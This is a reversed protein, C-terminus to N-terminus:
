ALQPVEAPLAPPLAPGQQPQILKDMGAFDMPPLGSYELIQNFAQGAGKVQMIQAFGQPNTFMFRFINVLKDTMQALNKTKGAVSVKVGLEVDRLENKLLKIFKKNGTKKFEEKVKEIFSDKEGEVFKGTGYLVRNKYEKNWLNVALNDAVFNLEDVTLESLFQIDKTLKRKIDPIIWDRYIEEIHRAFQARRYEHLGHSEATVLEQLKFPTGSSPSEGMIADNAAGMQQAHQEWNAISKEFLSINRPFTDIQGIDMGPNVEVIELNKMDKLGNPHKSMVTPDTSKLLTVSAADLMNQMRIMDYNVWVQPEFLEEAAGRGLARGYIEDRKILKFKSMTDEEATYLIVGTKEFAGKPQYFAVIFIRTEYDEGEYTPDYFRKPLSGHVEYIKIGQSPTEEERWLTILEEISHTAGNERNGWGKKSMEMLQDPGFEHIIGFPSALIDRQNCFVISQLPVVVPAPDNLKKSLGAGLDIRSISYKDFFEDLNNEYVYVDDHYKKVLMSLHFKDADNVYIQVDKVDVDEVRHQLNLIPLTINKVPTYDNKGNNLQSNTYNETTKIHEAMNWDWSDNMRIPLKYATEQQVIYDFIDKCYNAM